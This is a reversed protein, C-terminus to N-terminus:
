KSWSWHEATQWGRNFELSYSFNEAPHESVSIEFVRGANGVYRRCLCLSPTGDPVDLATARHGSLVSAYIEVNIKEVEEGFTTAILDYVPRRSAGLYRSIKAYEPLVYIDSWCVPAGNEFTRVGSIVAWESGVKCKLRRATAQDITTSAETIVRFSSDTPYSLLESPSRVMQVFAPRAVPSIVLTGRGRERRVVGMDELVRLGERVTHRSSGYREILELEGPLLSGVPFRGDRIGSLLDDAIRRYMPRTSGKAPQGSQGNDLQMQKM